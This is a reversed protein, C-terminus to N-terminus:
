VDFRTHNLVAHLAGYPVTVQMAGMAHPAVQCAPFTLPIGAAVPLLCAFNDPAPESGERLWDRLAADESFPAQVALTARVSRSLIGPWDSGPRFLDAPLLARGSQREIVLPLYLETGHAGGAYEYGGADIAVLAATTRLAAYGLDLTWPPEPPRGGGARLQVAYERCIRTVRREFEYAITRNAARAADQTEPLRPFYVSVQLGPEDIRLEVELGDPSIRRTPAPGSEALRPADARLASVLATFDRNRNHM